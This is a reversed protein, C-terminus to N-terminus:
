RSLICHYLYYNVYGLGMIFMDTPLIVISNCYYKLNHDNYASEAACVNIDFPDVEDDQNM